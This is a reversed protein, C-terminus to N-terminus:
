MIRDFDSICQIVEFQSQFDRCVNCIYGSSDFNLRCRMQFYVVSESGLNIYLAIITWFITFNKFKSKKVFNKQEKQLPPPANLM